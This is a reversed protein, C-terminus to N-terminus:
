KQRAQNKFADQTNIGKGPFGNAALILITLLRIRFSM